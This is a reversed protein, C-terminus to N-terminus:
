SQPSSSIERTPAAIWLGYGYRLGGARLSGCACGGSSAEGSPRGGRLLSCLSDDGYWLLRAALEKLSATHDEFHLLAFGNEALLRDTEQRTRAGALCSSGPASEATKAAGHIFLDSLLLRGEPRLIASFRRLAQGADPLLSLVCECLIGDFSADPFPPNQADAQVFPFSEALSYERDLGTGNLGFERVLALSAGTGCGIDLVEAGPAFACLELAHRTLGTGGPRWTGGAIRQFVASAYLPTDAAAM